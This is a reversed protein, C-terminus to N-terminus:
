GELAVHKEERKIKSDEKETDMNTIYFDALRDRLDIIRLEIRIEHGMNAFRMVSNIM